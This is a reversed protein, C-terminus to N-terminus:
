DVWNPTLTWSNFVAVGRDNCAINTLNITSITCLWYQIFTCSGKSTHTHTRTHSVRANFKTQFLSTKQRKKPFFVEPIINIVLTLVHQEIKLSLIFCFVNYKTLGKPSALCPSALALLLSWNLSQCLIMNIRFFNLFLVVGQFSQFIPPTYM